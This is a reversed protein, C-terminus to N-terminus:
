KSLEALIQTLLPRGYPYLSPSMVLLRQLESSAEQWLRSRILSIVLMTSSRTSPRSQVLLRAKTVLADTIVDNSGARLCESVYIEM